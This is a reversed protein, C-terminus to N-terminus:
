ELGIKESIDNSLNSYLKSGSQQQRKKEIDKFARPLLDKIQENYAVFIINLLIYFLIFYYVDNHCAGEIYCQILRIGFFSALLYSSLVLIRMGRKLILFLTALFIALIYTKIEYYFYM